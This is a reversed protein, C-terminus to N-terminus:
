KIIIEANKLLKKWGDYNCDDAQSQPSFKDIYGIYLSKAVKKIKFLDKKNDIITVCLVQCKNKSKKRIIESLKIIEPMENSYISKIVYVMKKNHLNHLFNNKLYMFKQFEQDYKEKVLENEDLYEAKENVLHNHIVSHFRINYLNDTVSTRSQISPSLNEYLFVDKFENSIINCLDKYDHIFTWRFFSSIENNNKRLVFGFECNYGLSEFRNFPITSDFASHKKRFKNKIWNSFNM